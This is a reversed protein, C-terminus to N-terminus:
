TISPWAGIPCPSAAFQRMGSLPQILTMEEPPHDVDGVPALEVQQGEALASRAARQQASRHPPESHQLAACPYDMGPM